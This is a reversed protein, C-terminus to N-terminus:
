ASEKSPRPTISRWVLYFSLLLALGLPWSFLETRARFQNLTFQTSEIENIRKYIEALQQTQSAVFSEGGTLEAIKDLTETDIDLVRTRGSDVNGFAITHIVLGM